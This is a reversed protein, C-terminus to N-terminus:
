ALDILQKKNTVFTLYHMSSPRSNLAPNDVTTFYFVTYSMGPTLGSINAVIADRGYLSYIQDFKTGLSFYGEKMLHHTPLSMTAPDFLGEMLAVILYTSAFTTRISLTAATSKVSLQSSLVM